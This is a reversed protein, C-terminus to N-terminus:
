VFTSVPTVHMAGLATSPFAITRELIVVVEPRSTRFVMRCCSNHLQPGRTTTDCALKVVNFLKAGLLWHSADRGGGLPGPALSLAARSGWSGVLTWKTLRGGSRVDRGRPRWPDADRRRAAAAGRPPPARRRRRGSVERQSVSEGGGPSPRHTPTETQYLLLCPHTRHQM